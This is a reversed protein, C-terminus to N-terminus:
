LVSAVAIKVILYFAQSRFNLHTTLSGALLLFVLSQKKAHDLLSLFSTSARQTNLM